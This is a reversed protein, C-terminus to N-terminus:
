STPMKIMIKNTPKQLKERKSKETRGHGKVRNTEQTPEQQIHPLYTIKHLKVSKLRYKLIKIEEDSRRVRAQKL